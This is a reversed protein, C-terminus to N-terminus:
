LVPVFVHNLSCKCDIDSAPRAVCGNRDAAINFVNGDSVSARVSASLGFVTWRTKWDGWETCSQNERANRKCKGWPHTEKGRQRGASRSLAGCVSPPHTTMARERKHLAPHASIPNTPEGGGIDNESADPVYRCTRISRNEIQNRNRESNERRKLGRMRTRANSLSINGNRHM